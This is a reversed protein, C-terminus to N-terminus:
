KLYITDYEINNNLLISTLKNFQFQKIEREPNSSAFEELIETLTKPNKKNLRSLITNCGKINNINIVDKNNIVDNYIKYLISNPAINYKLMIIRIAIYLQKNTSNWKIKSINKYENEDNNENYNNNDNIFIDFVPPLKINLLKAFDHAVFTGCLIIDKDNINNKNITIFKFYENKLDKGADGKVYGGNVIINHEIPTVYYENIIEIRKQHGRCEM